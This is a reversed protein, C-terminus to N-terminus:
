AEQRTLYGEAALIGEFAQRADAVAKARWREEQPFFLERFDREVRARMRESAGHWYAQNEMVMARLSRVGALLSNGLTGFEFSTAYLRKGGLENQALEYVYDIMDGQISYFESSNTKLVRPYAFQRELDRSDRAELTSNVLSMQYRPGYGTHMDLHVVRDYAQMHSRYLEMLLRTEEQISAGGYYIGQPFRYQGVLTARDFRQTGLKAIAKLLAYGFVAQSSFLSDLRAQPNLILNIKDYDPNFAKDIADVLFTRNLDVNAANTRRQHKMGWPNIAHVLCVGSDRPNLRPLYEGLFLRLLGVGVYAEIGHEGTTFLLLKAPRELAQAEIWDITLDEDGALRHQALHATPWFERVRELSRRFSARSAEYSAPFLASIESM